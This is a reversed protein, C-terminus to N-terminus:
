GCFRPPLGGEPIQELIRWAATMSDHLDGAADPAVYSYPSGKRQVGFALQNLTRPNVALGCKVAEDIMWILPYKSLASEAEPYGGGIDAHVGAFWVQLIDQPEANAQNFRHGTPSPRRRRGHSFVFCRRREDIAIAQRFIRVSPNEQIFALQLLSPLYFRDPRPVIM